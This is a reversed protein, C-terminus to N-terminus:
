QRPRRAPTDNGDNVTETGVTVFNAGDFFLVSEDGVLTDNGTGGDIRDNGLRGTVTDNGADGYLDNDFNNGWIYDHGGNGRANYPLNATSTVANLDIYDVSNTGLVQGRATTAKPTNPANSPDVTPM